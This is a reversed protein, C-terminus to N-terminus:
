FSSFFFFFGFLSLLGIRRGTERDREGERGERWLSVATTIESIVSNFIFTPRSSHTMTGKFAPILRQIFGVTNQGVAWACSRKEKGLRRTCGEEKTM